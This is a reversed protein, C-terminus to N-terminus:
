FDLARRVTYAITAHRMVLSPAGDPPLMPCDEGEWGAGFIPVRGM